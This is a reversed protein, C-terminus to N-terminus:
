PSYIKNQRFSLITQLVRSRRRYELATSVQKEHIYQIRKHIEGLTSLHLALPKNVEIQALALMADGLEAIGLALESIHYLTLVFARDYM